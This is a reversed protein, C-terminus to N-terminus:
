DAKDLNNKIFEELAEKLKKKCFDLLEDEHKEKQEVIFDIFAQKTAPLDKKIDKIVSKLLKKKIWGIIM